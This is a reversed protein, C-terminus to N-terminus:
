VNERRVTFQEQAAAQCVGTSRWRYKWVGPETLDVDVHYKGTSDKVLGPDVGYELTTTM